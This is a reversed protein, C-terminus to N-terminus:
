PKGVMASIADAENPMDSTLIEPGGTERVCITEEIRIGGFQQDLLSEVASRNICDAFPQLFSEERWIAPVFYIGPEITLTLGPALDRDLRVFKNGFETRRTRGPAYGAQDGFDEMDHVDLGILHGLGHTFFLAHAARAVLDDPRGKLLDAAVLGECIVKAALDHIDRFRKGPVCAAIATRQATLVTDYLQRQIPTFGGSIPYVRTIDSAYGAPEEAAADVLLMKGKELTGYYTETHLVEGHVTIIPNFSVRCNEAYLVHMFAALMDSERKGSAIAALVARHADVSVRAATRMAKLEHEDKHLRLDIIPQIEDPTPKSLNLSKAWELTPICPPAVFASARGGLANKLRDPAIFGSRPIGCFSELEADGAAEGIWVIDEFGVPRRVLTCGDLGDSDPEILLAAGAIPPGGFYLYNSGARFAQLNTAYQMPRPEGAFVVIPRQIGVALRARRERYVDRPATPKPLHTKM